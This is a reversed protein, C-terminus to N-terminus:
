KKAIPEINKFQKENKIKITLKELEDGIEEVILNYNSSYNKNPYHLKSQKEIQKLYSNTDFLDFKKKKTIKNIRINHDNVEDYFNNNTNNNDKNSFNLM